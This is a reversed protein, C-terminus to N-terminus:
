GSKSLGLYSSDPYLRAAAEREARSLEWPHRKGSLSVAEVVSVLSSFATGDDGPAVDAHMASLLSRFAKKSSLKRTRRAAALYRDLVVDEGPGYGLVVLNSLVVERGPHDAEVSQALFAGLQDAFATLAPPSKAARGPLSVGNM